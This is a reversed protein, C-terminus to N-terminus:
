VCVCVGSIYVMVYFHSWSVYLIVYFLSVSLYVSQNADCVALVDFCGKTRYLHATIVRSVPLM